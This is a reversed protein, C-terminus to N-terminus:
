KTTPNSTGPRPSQPRVREVSDRGANGSCRECNRSTVEKQGCIYCFIGTRPEICSNFVHGEKSCNYCVNRNNGRNGSTRQHTNGLRGRRELVCTESPQSRNSCDPVQETNSEGYIEVENVNALRNNPPYKQNQHSYSHDFPMSYNTRINSNTANDIRRCMESLQHLSRIDLPAIGIAYRPLLNRQVIHLKHEESLPMNLWKFLSQMQTIYEGFSETHRQRRNSIENLLTYEYNRPLFERKMASVVEEWSYFSDVMSLYWARARGTLLHILSFMLDESSMHESRQLLSVQSLFEYLHIGRGDGSFSIRWQNIPIARRSSHPLNNRGEFPQLPPLRNNQADRRPHVDPRNFPIRNIQAQSRHNNQPVENGNRNYRRLWDEEFNENNQLSLINDIHEFVEEQRIIEEDPNRGHPRLRNNQTLLSQENVNRPPPYSNGPKISLIPQNTLPPSISSPPCYSSREMPRSYIANSQNTGIPLQQVRRIHGDNTAKQFSNRQASVVDIPMVDILNERSASSAVQRRPVTIDTIPRPFEFEHENRRNSVFVSRDRSEFIEPSVMPSIRHSNPEYLPNPSETQGIAHGTAQSLYNIGPSTDTRHSRIGNAQEINQPDTYINHASSALSRRTEQMPGRSITGQAPLSNRRSEIANHQQLNRDIQSIMRNLEVKKESEESNSPKIRRLRHLYHRLRHESETLVLQKKLKIADLVIENLQIINQQCINLEYDSNYFEAGDSPEREIGEAERKLIERLKATKLRQSSLGFVRRIDLEYALEDPRLHIPDM